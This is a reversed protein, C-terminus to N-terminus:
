RSSFAPERAAVRARGLAGVATRAPEGICDEAFGVEMGGLARSLPECLPALSMTSQRKGKPRGFQSLAVVKAQKRMLELLTPVIREIRTADAVEGDQMPVNLDIRVLVTKGAPDLDDLTRIAPM